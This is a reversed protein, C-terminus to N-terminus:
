CIHQRACFNALAMVQQLADELTYQKDKKKDSAKKSLQINKRNAGLMVASSSSSTRVAFEDKDKESKGDKQNEQLFVSYITPSEEVPAVTCV